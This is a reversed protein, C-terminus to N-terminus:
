NEKCLRMLAKNGLLRIENILNHIDSNILGEKLLINVRDKFSLSNLWETGEEKAIIKTLKEAYIRSKIIATQPSSFINKNIEELVMYLEKYKNQLYKCINVDM